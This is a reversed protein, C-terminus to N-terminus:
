KQNILSYVRCLESIGWAQADCGRQSHPYNGDLIEPIHGICGKSLIHESSSLIAKATKIGQEGYTMYYAEPYSPFMWTWATGNHYAPKRRTDEDGCYYGWYPHYPDNLLDGSLGYVPQQIKVPRDALSRIAGPILLTASSNLIAKRTEFDTVAGLTIALLQNPRLADDQVAEAAPLGNKIHLCDSLWGESNVFLTNISIKVKNALTLWKEAGTLEYLFQLAAFWLAQIEIPYGERPTGAPYNTDMWTFHAPSYILASEQDMKIGNPTGAIYADAIEVLTQKVTINKGPVIQEPLNSIEMINCFDRCATFLWLPADSTDRNSAKAGHIINPLTGKEAFAAFNLLIDRVEDIYGATLMGRTCILTDRGWDLFWPYGAIVTKLDNRKVIFDKINKRLIEQFNAYSSEAYCNFDPVSIKEILTKDQINEGYILAASDGKLRFEFYGPSFLDNYPDLGREAENARYLGYRGEPKFQFTGNKFSACSDIEIKEFNSMESKLILYNNDSPAFIFGDDTVQISKGWSDIVQGNLKSNSHFSRNEIDIHIILSVASNNQLLNEYGDSLREVQMIAANKMEPMSMIIRLKIFKGNGVPVNFVWCGRSDALIEFSELCDISLYQTHTQYKIEVRCSNWMIWRDVPFEDHLNAALVSDYKSAYDCCSVPIHMMGGLGNTALFVPNDNRIRSNSLKLEPAPAFESLLLISASERRLGDLGFQSLRIKLLKNTKPQSIPPLIVFDNGAADQLSDRQIIIEDGDIVAIRFRSPAAVFMAHGPPLMVLRSIDRPYEFFTLPVEQNSDFFASFNKIPNELLNVAYQLIDHEQTIVSSKKFVTLLDMVMAKALQMIIAEPNYDRKNEAYRVAKVASIEPTLCLVGGPELLISQLKKVRDFLEPKYLKETLLDILFNYHEEMNLTAEQGKHDIDTKKFSQPLEFCIRTQQECNLNCLVLLPHKDANDSRVFAMVDRDFEEATGSAKIFNLKGKGHFTPHTALINNLKAIFDVQNIKNGWNLASSHHVDIKETAFWEVGNAFGFAGATSTMASLATRLKAYVPSIAALRSNDHTEAYNVMLGDSLSINRAYPLYNKIEKSSYNQFLESYAWNMNARNLLDQTVAPDGGLGELLFVTDPYQKKVRAIIYEWVHFPIMYGADCRFGDIGRECWVIFVEAFYQWLEIYSNDLETLDGWTIGWAGPSIINGNKDRKLWEPHTEHIKAAWGTHNIALDLIVKGNRLHVEDILEFMQELPTASRDFEALAPDVGTYDLAAYPSGYRGMRAFTTPVPNIPLLHIIRCNLEEMIFPIEKKFDRFTGSPPIVAYGKEDLGNINHIYEDKQDSVAKYKNIGFQRVFVCYISNGAYYAAPEVNIHVNDGGCWQPESDHSDSSFFFCKAEFHGVQALGLTIEFTLSDIRRMPIDNWDLGATPINCETKRIIEDRRTQAHGINTRIFAKGNQPQDLQLTFTVTDGRFYLEHSGPSPTQKM